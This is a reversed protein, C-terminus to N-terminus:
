PRRFPGRDITFPRRLSPTDPTTDLHNGVADPVWTETERGAAASSPPPTDNAATEAQPAIAEAPATPEGANQDQQEQQEPLSGSEYVPPVAPQMTPRTAPHPGTQAQSARNPILGEIAVIMAMAKIQGAINNRTIEPSLNALEWLRDLIQDRRLHMRRLGEAEQDALKRTVAARHEVMYERVRPKAKTYSATEPNLGAAQAAERDTMTGSLLLHVFAIEQDTIPDTVTNKPM